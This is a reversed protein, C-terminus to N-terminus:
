PRDKSPTFTEPCISSPFARPSRAFRVFACGHITIQRAFRFEERADYTQSQPNHCGNRPGRKKGRAALLRVRLLSRGLLLGRRILLRALVGVLLGPGFRDAGTGGRGEVAVDLIESRARM